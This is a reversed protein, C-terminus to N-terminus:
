VVLSSAYLFACRLQFFNTDLFIIHSTRHLIFRVLFAALHTFSSFKYFIIGKESQTCRNQALSATITCKGSWM